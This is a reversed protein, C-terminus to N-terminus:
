IAITCGHNKGGHYIFFVDPKIGANEIESLTGLLSGSGLGYFSSLQM